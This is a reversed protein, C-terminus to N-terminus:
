SSCGGACMADSPLPGDTLLVQGTTVYEVGQRVVKVIHGPNEEAHHQAAIPDDDLTGTPSCDLCVVSVPHPPLSQIVIIHREM